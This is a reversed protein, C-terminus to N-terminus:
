TEGRNVGPGREPPEVHGRTHSFPIATVPTYHDFPLTGGMFVQLIREFAVPELLDLDVVGPQVRHELHSPDAEKGKM